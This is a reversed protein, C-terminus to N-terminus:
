RDPGGRTPKCLGYGLFRGAGLIVPGIVPEAFQLWVHFQPRIGTTGKAPYPPFGDGLRASADTVEPHGRLPRRKVAARASGQHRSTTGFNVSVPEPLGIRQCARILMAIVENNWASTDCLRDEKPFGDLVVPTVSAWSRSGNPHASWGEPKLVKRPESWERKMLTWVGLPGLQLEVPKSKGSPQLLMPGLVQGRDQRSVWSPFALAAGLLHGDAYDSGVFPLPLYALHQKGDRLPEGTELHGTVWPPPPQKCHSIVAGRLAQTVALTSVAPLRPGDTRTLILFDSDFNTHRAAAPPRSGLQRYGSWLGLKPRIPERNDITQLRDSLKDIESNIEAKREKSGKGRVAKKAAAHREIEGSVQQYEERGRKNFWAELLNLTGGSVRRVQLDAVGSDPMWVQCQTPLCAEEALWMRVLSSSHGIRTVKGCLRELAPRHTELETPTVSPWRLFCPADGVWVTPFTRPQKSRTFLPASQLLAASPGPSDNVPVFVTVVERHFVEDHSPLGLEPDNLQEMWRLANGEEIDEGTEFWAAALAM